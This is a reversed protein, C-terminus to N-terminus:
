LSIRKGKELEAQAAQRLAALWQDLEADTAIFPLNCQPRLSSAPTYRVPPASPPPKGAMNKTM